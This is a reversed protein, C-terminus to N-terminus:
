AVAIPMTLRAETGPARNIYSVEAGLSKAITAVIRSGVGTGRAPADATIGVGDDEVGMLLQDQM